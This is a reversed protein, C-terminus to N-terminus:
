RVGAEARQRILMPLYHALATQWAPMPEGDPLPTPALVAWLPATSARPWTSAPVEEIADGRGLQRFLERAWGARSTHGSNVLHHFGGHEGRIDGAWLLGIIAEALDEAFTPSGFEDGVVRLPQGADRARDAAALIKSPFDNGPPGYLWSTRVIALQSRAGTFAERAAVEGALKSEGYANIPSTADDPAYGLGDTRRGDFVENTSVQVLDIGGDACAEALIGVAEGNRARALAPDRACGDVDTWAAANIVVEPRDRALLRGIGGPADLDFDARTWATPGAPGSFPAEELAAILARGLRGGAGTVAVRM